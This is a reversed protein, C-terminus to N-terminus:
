LHLRVDVGMQFPAGRQGIYGGGKVNELGFVNYRTNTINRAWVNVNVRGLDALVHAGPLVYLKQSAVNAADWYTKGQAHANAGVTLSRLLSGEPLDFRYDVMASLTHMPIYPVYNKQYDVLQKETQQRVMVDVGDVTVKEGGTKVTISDTYDRFVARTFGYSLRYTLHDDALSGDLSLEVGCNSSKGVNKMMRGYSNESAMVVMQLNRVQTYFAALDIRLNPLLNLHTGAEYNWSTEPKYSITQEIEAYADEDHPIVVDESARQNAQIEDSIVDSFMQINYGGARYGKSWLAYVNSGNGFKYTLAVKPLLQSFGNTYEHQLVDSIRIQYDGMPIVAPGRQMKMLLAVDMYGETAYDLAVHNYDYRLGLTATLHDGLDINSEHFAALNYTPMRFLGPVEPSMDLRMYSDDTLVMGSLSMAGKQALWAAQAVQENFAPDFYVPADTKNWLYSGYLGTSWHWIGNGKGKFVLEELLGNQLQDERMRMNARATYDIDMLMYDNLHQYATTSFVDFASGEYKLKLGTNLMARRYKGDITTAVNAVSGEAVDMAGYPFANQLVWQYDAVFDLSLRETPNWILRAKCGAENYSDARNGTTSNRFFGNQGEYFAAVSFAVQDSVKNYHEVEVTRLMRSGLGVRVDTGQYRMPDKSYVRVLGGETNMGYLTGQPGRMVDVREVGYLHSNYLSKSLLPIGDSYLGMAPNNERSGIGRVYMASTYRSGYNPMVFAPVYDSLSRLDGLSLRQMDAQGLMTSSLPQLRLRTTEKPQSVVVVEDLDVVRSTDAVLAPQSTEPNSAPQSTEPNSAPQGIGALLAPQNNGAIAALPLGMFLLTAIFQNKM